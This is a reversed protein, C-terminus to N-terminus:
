KKVPKKRAPRPKKEQTAIDTAQLETPTSQQGSLLQPHEFHIPLNGIVHLSSAGSQRNSSFSGSNGFIGSYIGIESDEVVKTKIGSQKPISYLTPQFLQDVDRFHHTKYGDSYGASLSNKFLMSDLEFQSIDEDGIRALLDEIRAGVPFCGTFQEDTIMNEPPEDANM